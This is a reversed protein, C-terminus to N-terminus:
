LQSATTKYQSAGHEKSIKALQAAMHHNVEELSYNRTEYERGILNIVVNAKAMVHEQVLYRGLFGTAGFVTAVIGCSKWHNELISDM